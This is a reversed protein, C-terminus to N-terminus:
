LTKRSICAQVPLSPHSLHHWAPSLKLRRKGRHGNLLREDRMGGSPHARFWCSRQTCLLQPATGRDRFRAPAQGSFCCDLICLVTRARTGKFADALVTMALVTGPLDTADTDSLLLRGNRSGHGAFTIVIVDDEQASELTGLIADSVAVLRRATLGEITDTFLAWLAM